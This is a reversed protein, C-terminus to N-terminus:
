LKKFNKINRNLLKRGKRGESYVAKLIQTNSHHGTGRGKGGYGKMLCIARDTQTINLSDEISRNYSFYMLYVYRKLMKQAIRHKMTDFSKLATIYTRLEGHLLM